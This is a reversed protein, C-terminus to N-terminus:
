YDEVELITAESGSWDHNDANDPGLFRGGLEKLEPQDFLKFSM